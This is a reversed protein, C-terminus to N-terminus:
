FDSITVRFFSISSSTTKAITEGSMIGNDSIIAKISISYTQLLIGIYIAKDKNKADTSGTFELKVEYPYFPEDLVDGEHIENKAVLTAKISSIHVTCEDNVKYDFECDPYVPLEYGIEANALDILGDNDKCATLGFSFSVLCLLTLFGIFFKKM